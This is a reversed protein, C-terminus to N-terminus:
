YLKYWSHPKKDKIECVARAGQMSGMMSRGMGPAIGGPQGGYAGGRGAYSGAGHAIDTGSVTSCGASLGIASLASPAHAAHLVRLCIASMAYHAPLRIASKVPLQPSPACALRRSPPLLLLRRAPSLSCRMRSSCPRMSDPEAMRASVHAIRLSAVQSLPAGREMPFGFGPLMVTDPGCKTSNTSLIDCRPRSSLHLASAQLSRIGHSRTSGRAIDTTPTASHIRLSM